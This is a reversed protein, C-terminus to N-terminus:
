LDTDLFLYEQEMGFMPREEKIEDMVKKCAYRHNTATPNNEPDYTECLVLRNNGCGLFPDPYSAVPKLILDSKRGTAQGTSSGDYNWIPYDDISAPLVDLIRTKSRLTEGTGDIWIYTAQCQTPLTSLGLYPGYADIKEPAPM